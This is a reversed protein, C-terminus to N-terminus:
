TMSNLVNELGDLFNDIKEQSDLKGQNKLGNATSANGNLSGIFTDGYINKWRLASTGLDYTNNIQPNIAGNHKANVVINASSNGINLDAM